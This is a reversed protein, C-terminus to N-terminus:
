PGIFMSVILEHAVHNLEFVISFELPVVDSYNILLPTGRLEWPPKHKLTVVLCARIKDIWGSQKFKAWSLKINSGNLLSQYEDIDKPLLDEWDFSLEYQKTEAEIALDELRRDISERVGPYYECYKEYEKKASKRFRRKYHM